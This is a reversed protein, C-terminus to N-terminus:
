ATRTRRVVLLAAGAAVFLGAILALSGSNSGTSPIGAGSGLDVYELNTDELGTQVPTDTNDVYADIETETPYAILMLLHGGDEQCEVIVDIYPENCAVPVDM